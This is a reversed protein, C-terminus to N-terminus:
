ENGALCTQYIELTRAAAREWTFHDAIHRSLDCTRETELAQQLAERISAVHRPDCYLARDGFYESASGRNTIVVSCGALGAELAAISPTEFWSPLAFIQAAHYASVLMESDHAVNGIFHVRPGAARKCRAFYAPETSTDGILVLPCEVENAALILSLVNKKAELRGVFLIFDSLGYANVFQDPEGLSFRLDAANHVVELRSPDVNFLRHLLQAELQSNPLVMRARQLYFQTPNIQPVNYHFLRESKRQVHWVGYRLRRTIRSSELRFQEFQDWYVPSLVFPVGTKLVYNVTSLHEVSNSGFLHYLDFTAISDEFKNLLRVNVGLRELHAKTQLLQVEGGGFFQFALRHTDFLVNM